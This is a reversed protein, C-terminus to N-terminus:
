APPEWNQPFDDPRLLADTGGDDFLVSGCFFRGDPGLLFAVLAAIEEARGPRGVPLPFQDLLPGLEPDNKGEETMPTAIFGPAIANLTIGAGIWEPTTANRRVWRAVATKTAPYAGISGVEDGVRRAEAEDGSLCATVLAAPVGPQTTTSNSSIAVAAPDTGAALLERLGTLLEVTGFYNVSVLLSGARNPLPGVGAYTVLGDLSGGARDRVGAIAARRGDATSLDAVVDADRQDVGIVRHGGAELRAKTAAGMGSAAGTIAITGM